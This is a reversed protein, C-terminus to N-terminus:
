PGITTIINKVYQGDKGSDKIIWVVSGDTQIVYQLFSDCGYCNNM